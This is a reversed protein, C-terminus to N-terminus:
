WYSNVGDDTIKKRAIDLMEVKNLLFSSILVAEIDGYNKINFRLNHRLVFTTNYSM